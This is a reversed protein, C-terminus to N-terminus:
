KEVEVYELLVAPIRRRENPAISHYMKVFKTIVEDFNPFEILDIMHTDYNSHCSNAFHCLEVWNKEHTAISKFISKPLIHAVSYHFFADNDRESKKGCFCCIGTMEKRREEFWRWLENNGKNKGGSLNREAKEQAIKKASKKPITYIKKTKPLKAANKIARIENLGM